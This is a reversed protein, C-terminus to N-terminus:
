QDKGIKRQKLQDPLDKHSLIAYGFEDRLERVRRAWEM